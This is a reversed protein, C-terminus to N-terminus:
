KSTPVGTESIRPDRDRLPWVAPNVSLFDDQFSQLMIELVSQVKSAYGHEDVRGFRVTSWTTAISATITSDRVLSVAQLFELRILFTLFGDARDTSLSLYLVPVLLSEPGGASSDALNVGVQKLALEAHSRLGDETVGGSTSDAALDEIAVKITDIGRLTNIGAEARALGANFTGVVSLVIVVPGIRRGRSM